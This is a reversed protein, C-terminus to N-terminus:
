VKFRCDEPVRLVYLNPIEPEHFAGLGRDDLALRVLRIPGGHTVVLASRGRFEDQLEEIAPLVRHQMEALTEGGGPPTREPHNRWARYGDQDRSAVEEHSLGEWQGVDIEVLRDDCRMADASAGLERATEVCRTLPSSVVHGFHTLSSALAAAARRGEGTLPTDRRGQFRKPERNFTTQAHRVLTIM